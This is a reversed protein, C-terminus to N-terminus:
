SEEKVNTFVKLQFLPHYLHSAFCQSKVSDFWGLFFNRGVEVFM